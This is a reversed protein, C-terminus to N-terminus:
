LSLFPDGKYRTVLCDQQMQKLMNCFDDGYPKTLFPGVILQYYTNGKIESRNILPATDVFEEPYARSVKRWGERALQKSAYAAIQVGFYPYDLNKGEQGYFDATVAGKPPAQDFPDIKGRDKESEVNGDTKKLMTSASEEEGMQTQESTSDISAPADDAGETDAQMMNDTSGSAANQKEVLLKIDSELALVRELQPKINEWEQQQAQLASQLQANTMSTSDDKKTACGALLVSGVIAFFFMHRM